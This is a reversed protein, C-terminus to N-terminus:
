GREANEQAGPQGLLYLRLEQRGIRGLRRSGDSVADTPRIFLDDNGCQRIQGLLDVTMSQRPSRKKQHAFRDASAAITRPKIIPSMPMQKPRPATIFRMRRKLPVLSPGSRARAKSSAPKWTRAVTVRGSAFSLRNPGSNLTFPPCAVRSDTSPPPKVSGLKASNRLRPPASRTSSAVCGKATRIVRM